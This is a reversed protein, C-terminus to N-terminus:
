IFGANPEDLAKKARTSYDSRRYTERPRNKLETKLHM